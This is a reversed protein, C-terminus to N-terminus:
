ERESPCHSHTLKEDGLALSGFSQGVVALSMFSADPLLHDFEEGLATSLGTAKLMRLGRGQTCM